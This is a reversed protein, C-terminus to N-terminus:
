TCGPFRLSTLIPTVTARIDAKMAKQLKKLVTQQEPPLDKLRQNPMMAVNCRIQDALSDYHVEINSVRCKFAGTTNDGEAITALIKKDQETDLLREGILHWDRIKFAKTQTRAAVQLRHPTLAGVADVITPSQHPEWQVPLYGLQQYLRLRSAAYGERRDRGLHKAVPGSCDAIPWIDITGEGNDIDFATFEFYYDASQFLIWWCTNTKGPVIHSRAERVQDILTLGKNRKVHRLLKDHLENHGSEPKRTPFWYPVGSKGRTNNILPVHSSLQKQVTKPLTLQDLIANQHNM